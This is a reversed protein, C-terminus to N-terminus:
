KSLIMKGSFIKNDILAKYFYIGSAAKRSKNNKGNWEFSHNGLELFSDNLNKVVKGNIDIVDLVVYSRQSLSIDIKTSRNFPNPYNQNVKTQTPILNEEVKVPTYGIVSVLLYIGNTYFSGTRLPDGTQYQVKTKYEKNTKKVWIKFVMVEGDIFGDLQSTMSNDGHAILAGNVEEWVMAGCCTDKTNFVGIEDGTVLPTNDVIPSAASKTIAITANVGTSDKFKFHTPKVIQGVLLAPLFLLIIFFSRM